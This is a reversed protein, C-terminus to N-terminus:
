NNRKLIFVPKLNLIIRDNKREEENRTKKEGERQGELGETRGEVGGQSRTTILKLTIQTHNTTSGSRLLCPVIRLHWPQDSPHPVTPLFRQQTKLLSPRSLLTLLNLTPQKFLKLPSQPEPAAGARRTGPWPTILAPPRHGLTQSGLSPLLQTLARSCSTQM